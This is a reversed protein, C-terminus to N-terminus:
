HVTQGSQAGHDTRAAEPDLAGAVHTVMGVWKAHLQALALRAEHRAHPHHQLFFLNSVVKRAILRRLEIPGLPAHPCPDAWASMLALTGVMMVDLAPLDDQQQPDTHPGTNAPSM